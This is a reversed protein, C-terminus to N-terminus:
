APKAPMSLPRAWRRSPSVGARDQRLCCHWPRHQQGFSCQSPWAPQTKGGRRGTGPSPQPPSAQRRDAKGPCTAVAGRVRHGEQRQLHAPERGGLSTRLAPLGTLEASHRTLAAEGSGEEQAPTTPQPGGGGGGEAGGAGREPDGAARPPCGSGAGASGLGSEPQCRLDPCGGQGWSPSMEAVTRGVAKRFVGPCSPWAPGHSAPRRRAAAPPAAIARHELHLRCCPRGASPLRQRGTCHLCRM